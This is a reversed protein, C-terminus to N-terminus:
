RVHHFEDVTFGLDSLLTNGHKSDDSEEHDILGDRSSGEEKM